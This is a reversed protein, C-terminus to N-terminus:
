QPMEELMIFTMDAATERLPVLAQYADSNYWGRLADNDPFRFAVCFNADHRGVLVEAVQGRFLREGGAAEILPVAQGTYEKLKDMDKIAAHVVLYASM